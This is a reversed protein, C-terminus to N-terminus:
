INKLILVFLLIIGIGVLTAYKNYKCDGYNGKFGKALWITFGGLARIGYIGAM